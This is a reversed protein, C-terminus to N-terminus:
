FFTTWNNEIQLYYMYIQSADNGCTLLWITLNLVVFYPELQVMTLNHYYANVICSLFMITCINCTRLLAIPSWPKFLGLAFCDFGASTHCVMTHCVMLYWYSGHMIMGGNRDTGQIWYAYSLVNPFNWLLYMCETRWNLLLSNRVISETWVCTCHL